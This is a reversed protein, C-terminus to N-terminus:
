ATSDLMVQRPRDIEICSDMQAYLIIHIPNELPEKMNIELRLSGTKLPEVMDGDTLSPSLDFCFMTYGEAYADYSISNGIDKWSSGTGMFLSLYSRAYNKNVFDPKLAKTPIQQGDLYLALSNIKYHKFEFPSQSYNGNFASSDVLAVVLRTPRQNVFLNDKIINFNGQPASVVQTIIRKINYKCSSVQISKAIALQIAPNVRARRLFLSAHQIKIRYKPIVGDAQTPKAILAFADKSRVFRLRMDVGNILFKEQTFLDAHIRGVMDLTRSRKIADMRKRLGKDDIEGALDFKGGSVSSYFMSLALQTAKADRGYNLLTEIYARYPYTNTSTTVLVGNLTIDVESFLAQLFLNVPTVKDDDADTLDQGDEKVVKVQVHIYTNALDIYDEGSGKVLFEIPGTDNM